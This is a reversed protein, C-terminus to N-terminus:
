DWLSYIEKKLDSQLIVFKKNSCDLAIKNSDIM